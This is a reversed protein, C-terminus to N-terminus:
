YSWKSNNAGNHCYQYVVCSFKQNLIALSDIHQNEYVLNNLKWQTYILDVLIRGRGMISLLKFTSIRFAEKQGVM